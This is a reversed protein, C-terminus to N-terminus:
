VTLLIRTFYLPLYFFSVKLNRKMAEKEKMSDQFTSPLMGPFLLLAVPLFLELAPILIFFSMPVLRLVDGVTRAMQKRERRTLTYGQLVRTGLGAATGVDAKLLKVGLWYHKMTGSFHGWQHATWQVCARPDRLSLVATGVTSLVIGPARAVIKIAKTHLPQSTTALQKQVHDRVEDNNGSSLMAIEEDLTRDEPTPLPPTPKACLLRQHQWRFSGGVAFRSRQEHRAAAAASRGLALRSYLRTRQASRVAIM